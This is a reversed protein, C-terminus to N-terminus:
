EADADELRTEKPVYRKQEEGPDSCLWCQTDTSEWYVDCHECYM